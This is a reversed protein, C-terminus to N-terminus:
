GCHNYVCKPKLKMETEANCRTEYNENSKIKSRKRDGCVGFGPVSEEILSVNSFGSKQFWAFVEEITHHYAYEPSYTDFLSVVNERWTRKPYEGIKLITLITKIISYLLAGIFCLYYLIRLPLKTTVKRFIDSLLQAPRYGYVWIYIRGNYKVLPVISNFAKETNPTHHLVGSSYIYDFCENQFPPKLLNGQVFHVFPSDSHVFENKHHYAGEVSSSLDMGVVELGFESIGATLVGNGCGADLVLKSKLISPSVNLEHLFKYKRMELDWGWTRDKYQYIEWELGFSEKTKEYLKSVKTKKINEYYRKDMIEYIQKSYKKVFDQNTFFADSLMRPVGNIIPFYLGCHNCKFLGDTIEIKYCSDCAINDSSSMDGLYINNLSCYEACKIQTITNESCEDYKQSFVSLSLSSGCDPCRLIDMLRHKM